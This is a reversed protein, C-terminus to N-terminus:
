ILADRDCVAKAAELTWGGAFISLQRMFTQEIPTMLGWSWDMSARMTQHRPLASRSNNALLDFCHNLQKLIEHVQLIDVRAAALEIALPIGDLRRCIHGVAQINKQTLRFTSVALTAREEFLRVSEYENIKESLVTDNEPTSLSPLYYTAEGDMNLIERSTSLIKLDQCYTLLSKIMEACADLLHDCNDFILLM